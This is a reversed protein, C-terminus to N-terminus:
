GKKAAKRHKAWRKRQAAAIRASGEASLKPRKREGANKARNRKPGPAAAGALIRRMQELRGLEEDIAAVLSRTNMEM